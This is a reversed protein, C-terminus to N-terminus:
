HGSKGKKNPRLGLLEPNKERIEMYQQMSLRRVDVKGGSVAPGGPGGNGGLGGVVGSRYLNAYSPLEKMRKAAADPSLARTVPQNNEDTDPFDVVVQFRGTGRGRDDKVEELRSWQRLHLTLQSASFADNITAARTLESQLTSERFREEWEKAAKKEAAIEKAHLSDRQKLEHEAQEQRTRSAAQLEELQQTLEAREQDSLGNRASMEAITKELKAQHKRRDDALIRNLESQSITKPETPASAAAPLPAAAPTPEGNDNDYSALAARSRYLPNM